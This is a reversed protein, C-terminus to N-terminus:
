KIAERLGYAEADRAMLVGHMKTAFCGIFLGQEDCLVCGM